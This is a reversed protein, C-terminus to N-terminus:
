PRVPPGSHMLVFPEYLGYGVTSYRAGPPPGPSPGKQFMAPWATGLAPSGHHPGLTNKLTGVVTVEVVNAGPRIWKTVDLEWPASLVLGAVQGNVKVRAVSGYWRGLRVRCEAPAVGLKFEETYSVGEAYFPQGQENWAGLALARDASIEFGSDAADLAFDGLIYVPELEHYITFPAAKLVLENEGVRAERSIDIKGFARDLWWEGERAEVRRGNCLVTYLDPREM